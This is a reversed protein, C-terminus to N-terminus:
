VREFLAPVDPPQWTSLSTHAQICNYVLGEFAVKDGIEYDVGEQWKPVPLGPGKDEGGDFVPTDDDPQEKYTLVVDLAAEYLTQDAANLSTIFSLFDEGGVTVSKRTVVAERPADKFKQESAYGLVTITAQEAIVDISYNSLVWHLADLGKPDPISKQIAM